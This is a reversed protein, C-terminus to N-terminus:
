ESSVQQSAPAFKLKPHRKGTVGFNARLSSHIPLLISIVYMSQFHTKGFSDAKGWYINCGSAYGGHANLWDNFSGPDVSVGKTNLMMAVSSM